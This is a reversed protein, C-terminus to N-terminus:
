DYVDTRYGQLKGDADFLKSTKQHLRSAEHIQHDILRGYDGARKASSSAFIAGTRAGAIATINSVCQNMDYWNNARELLKIEQYLQKKKDEALDADAVRQRLDAYYADKARGFDDSDIPYGDSGYGKILREWTNKAHEDHMLNNTVYEIQEKSAYNLSTQSVKNATDANINKLTAEMMPKLYALVIQAKDYDAQGLLAKMKTELGHWYETLAREKETDTMAEKLGKDAVFSAAQALLLDIQAQKEKKGTLAFIKNSMDQMQAQLDTLKEQSMSLSIEQWIKEVNAKDVGASSLDKIAGSLSKIYAGNTTMSQMAALTASPAYSVSSPSSTASAGTPLSQSVGTAGAGQRFAAAPNVGAAMMRKVVNVPTNYENQKNWMDEQWQRDLLAQEANFARSKENEESQWARSEANEASQSASAQSGLISNALFNIGAGLAIGGLLSM